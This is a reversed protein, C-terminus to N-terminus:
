SKEGSLLLRVGKIVEDLVTTKGGKNSENGELKKIEFTLYDLLKEIDNVIESTEGKIRSNSNIIHKIYNLSHEKGEDTLKGILEKFDEYDYLLSKSIKGKEDKIENRLKKMFELVEGVNQIPREFSNPIIALSNNYYIFTLDKKLVAQGNKDMTMIMEKEDEVLEYSKRIVLQLPDAYHSLVISYTRGIIAPATFVANNIKMFGQQHPTIVSDEDNESNRIGAFAKRSEIVFDLAESVPLMALLDDGGAYIVFGKHKNVLYIEYLLARNLAASISVHFAPSLIIRKNNLIEAFYKISEKIADSIKADDSSLKSFCNSSLCKFLNARPEQGCSSSDEAELILMEIYSQLKQNFTAASNMLYEKLFERIVDEKENNLKLYDSDIIGALYPTLKGELLDGLYDSDARVLAYYPSPTSVSYKERLLRRFEPNESFWLEEPNVQLKIKSKDVAENFWKWLSILEPKGGKNCLEESIRDNNNCIENGRRILEEFLPISSIHSTSPIFINKRLKKIESDDLDRRTLLVKLVRPETAIARKILCWPCLREGPSIEKQLTEYDEESIDSVEEKSKPMIFVAPLLNCSTCYEFGRGSLNKNKSIIKEVDLSSEPSIKVLKSKKFKEVLERYLNDYVNWNLYNNSLSVRNKVEKVVKVRIRIPTTRVIDGYTTITTFVIRWFPDDTKEKAVKCINNILINWGSEFENEIDTEIDMEDNIADTKGNVFKLDPLIMTIRGPIIPYPPIGLKDEEFSDDNNFVYKKVLGKVYNLVTVREPDNGSIRQLKDIMYYAYFQNFRLSPFIVVDPGYEEVFHLIVHWLLASVLYSSVWFDRTKRGKSIFDNIGVVDIGVLFLYNESDIWNIASATAYVHDFISHTPTRTDAPSNQFGKDIWFLEYILYVLQYFTLLDNPSILKSIYSSLCHFEKLIELLDKERDGDIDIRYSPYIINKLEINSTPFCRGGRYAINGLYRDMTSAFKDAKDVKGKEFLFMDSTVVNFLRIGFKSHSMGKVKKKAVMWAKNPPDHFLASLKHELLESLTPLRGSSQTRSSRRVM